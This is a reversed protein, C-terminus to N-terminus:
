SQREDMSMLRADVCAAVFADRSTEIPIRHSVAAVCKERAHAYSRGRECPWRRSLFFIADEPGRVAYGARDATALRVPAKWLIKFEVDIVESM